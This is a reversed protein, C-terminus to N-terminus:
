RWFLLSCSLLQQLQVLTSIFCTLLTQVLLKYSPQTAFCQTYICYDCPKCQCASMESVLLAAIDQM